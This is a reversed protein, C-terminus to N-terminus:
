AIGIWGVFPDCIIKKFGQNLVKKRQAELEEREKKLEIAIDNCTGALCDYKKCYDKWVKTRKIRDERTM